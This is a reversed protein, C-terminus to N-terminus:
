GTQGDNECQHHPAVAPGSARASLLEGALRAVAGYDTKGAGLIPVEAVPLIRRPVFLEPTGARQAHELLPSRTADKRDTVLVLQEGKKEDPIAIAAHHDNPWVDSALREVATLSVMEGAIKAFRRARGLITVFGAEDISVIDGTDYVGNPPAEIQGPREVHLYGLMVNPGKLLLRGGAVVGPVPELRHDLGPVFRGVSGAKFHMATNVAIVPSMETAGYGELIRLGFKRFWADRTEERVREAGAFVYRVSYFDYPHAARAYGSLFTDTGFLITANTGYALLPVIRYHLPSPYLFTRVGTLLPLLLGATLGFSHFIPLANFVRDTSNFDVVAGLQYRNAIINAHSLVVGKPTGESGSTFLVVAPDGPNEANWRGALAPLRGSLAGLLKEGVGIASHIDELHIIKAHRALDTLVPSLRAAAIFRRSTLVLKIRAAQCAALMGASGTSFNLLAPVRCFAQLAFFTVAAAGSNPLLVGVYEGRGTLRALRRGLVLSGAILRHYTLPQQGVDDIIIRGGGHVTRADLLASFLTVNWDCTQFMLETMLDHLKLGIDQRRQRGKLSPPAAIRRPPLVTITIPPFWRLRVKGRLRSFATYQAGDIRVPLIPAGAKDAIMGPGEYIKMLAGTVTIRGEPFIVCQRGSQVTRILVKTALPSTPDIAVADFLGLAPRVWWRKAIHTDIAFTPRGPVFVALLLGDLFSVHNAVIVVREGAAAANELGRVTVRYLLRLVRALLAKLIM